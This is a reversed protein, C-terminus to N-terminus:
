RKYVTEMKIPEIPQLYNLHEDTACFLRWYYIWNIRPLFKKRINKYCWCLANKLESLYRDWFPKFLNELNILSPGLLKNEMGNTELM